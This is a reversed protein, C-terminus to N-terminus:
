ITISSVSKSLNTLVIISVHTVVAANIIFTNHSWDTVAHVYAPICLSYLLRLSPLLSLASFFSFFKRQKQLSTVVFFLDEAFCSSISIM